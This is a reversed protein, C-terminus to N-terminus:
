ADQKNQFIAIQEFNGSFLYVLSNEEVIRVSIPTLINPLFQGDRKKESPLSKSTVEPPRQNKRKAIALEEFDRMLFVRQCSQLITAAPKPWASKLNHTQAERPDNQTAALYECLSGLSGLRVIQFTWPGLGAALIVLLGSLSFLHSFPSPFPSFLLSMKPPGPPLPSPRLPHPAPPGHCPPTRPCLHPPGSAHPGLNCPVKEHWFTSCTNTLLNIRKLLQDVKRHSILKNIM